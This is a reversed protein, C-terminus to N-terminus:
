RGVLEDTLRVPGTEGHLRARYVPLSEAVRMVYNQTEVFPISEIWDVVDTAPDRPDGYDGIWQRPRGPGANYGAAVLAPADGFEGILQALYASGLTANYAWDGTLRSLDYPQGTKAAMLKATGPMLQMLGRAGAHSIVKPDFESERRAIALALEPEVPLDLKELGNTPFYAAPWVLGRMAGAKAVMLALHPRERDIAFRALRALDDNSLSEGLHLLFREGLDDAGAAYLLDAALFVPAHTFAAGEWHPPLDKGTLVPDLAQGLKEASLLGYFSTQYNAGFAYAQRAAEPRGLAEFARGQWYGARGLSIPSAVASQFRGFHALATAPDKLWRLAIYGSLWELDAYDAGETLHHSSAIRYAMEPHGLRMERRALIARWEAWKEPDGLSEASGSRELLLDRAGDYLDKWIRWRYRDYALGASGAMYDPVAEIRADVGPERAQLAIRAEAVAKTGPTVLPLMRRADDIEGADLMAAMRGGHNPALATAFRELFKSQEEPALSMSRWARVAERDAAAANGTAALAEALRLSGRGTQPPNGHFYAIVTAPDDNAPIAAEGQRQLWPMGPWDPHRGIFALYDPLTATNGPARLRLWELIDSALPGATRARGMAVPWDGRNAAELAASLAAPDEAAAAPRPAVAALPLSLTLTALTLALLPRAFM